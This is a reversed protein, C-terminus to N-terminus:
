ILGVSTLIADKDDLEEFCMLLFLLEKLPVTVTILSFFHPKILDMTLTNGVTNPLQCAGLESFRPLFSLM